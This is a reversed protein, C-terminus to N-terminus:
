SSFLYQKYIRFSILSVNINIEPIIEPLQHSMERYLELLRPKYVSAQPGLLLSSFFKATNVLTYLNWDSSEMFTNISLGIIEKSLSSDVVSCFMCISELAYLDKIGEIRDKIRRLMLETEKTNPVTPLNTLSRCIGGLLM